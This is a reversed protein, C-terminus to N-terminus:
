SGSGKVSHNDLVRRYVSEYDAVLKNIGYKKRVGDRGRSGITGAMIPSRYIKELADAVAGSNNWEVLLGTQGNRVLENNGPVDSVVVPTGQAMAELVANSSGESRSVNVFVDAAGSYRWADKQWGTFIVKNGLPAAQRELKARLEGDGVLMLVSEPVTEVFKAFGDILVDLCKLANLRGTSVVLFMGDPIGLQERVAKRNPSPEVRDLDIANPIVEVRDSSVGLREVALRRGDESVCITFDCRGATLRYAPTYWWEHSGSGWQLSSVLRPMKNRAVALRSVIDSKFLFTQVLQPTHEALHSRFGRVANILDFRSIDLSVLDLGAAAFRDTYADAPGFSLVTVRHGRGALGKALNFLVAQAGGGRMHDIALCINMPEM